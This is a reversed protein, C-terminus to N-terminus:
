EHEDEDIMADKITDDNAMFHLIQQDDDFVHLNTIKDPISQRYL